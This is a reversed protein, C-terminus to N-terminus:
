RKVVSAARSRSLWGSRDIHHTAMGDRCLTLKIRGIGLLGTM